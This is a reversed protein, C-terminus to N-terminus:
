GLQSLDTRRAPPAAIATYDDVFSSVFARVEHAIKEFGNAKYGPTKVDAGAFIIKDLQLPIDRIEIM